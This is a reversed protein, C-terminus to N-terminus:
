TPRRRVQCSIANRVTSQLEIFATLMEEARVIFRKGGRHAGVVLQCNVLVVQSAASYQIIHNVRTLAIQYAVDRDRTLVGRALEIRDRRPPLGSILVFSVEFSSFCNEQN